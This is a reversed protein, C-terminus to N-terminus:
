TKEQLVDELCAAFARPHSIYGAHHSPFHVLSKGLRDALALTSRYAPNSQGTIGGALVIKVGCFALANVDLRYHHVALFTYGFNPPKSARPDRQPLVVGPELDDYNLNLQRAMKYMAVMGGERLYSQHIEEQIQDFDDLLGEVPPEHAVLMKILSPHRIALDLGILAGASSGFIFAPGDALEDLLRRADESHTQLDMEDVPFTLTSGYSGRRDYTVVKYHSSLNGALANYGDSGGDGGPILLLLPGSGRVLYSIEAGPVPLLNRQNPSM